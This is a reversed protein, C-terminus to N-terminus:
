WFKKKAYANGSGVKVYKEFDQAKQQCDFGIYSVVKWPRDDKTYVSNGANHTDLREQLNTTYGVYTKDPNNISRIFYVYYM